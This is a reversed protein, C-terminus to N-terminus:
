SFDLFSDLKNTLKEKDIDKGIIVIKIMKDGYEPDWDDKIDPNAILIAEQEEKSLDSIWPGTPVLNKSNGASEFMYAINLEDTFYVVGKTRIISKDWPKNIFNYFLKRNFPSRRYYVFTEIGYELAEESDEHEEPNDLAQIWGASMSVEEFNFLKNDIIKDIDVKAYDTEILKAKPQIQKVITRVAKLDESKLDSVKNLIIVDCFELQEIILKEIDEDDINDKILNKGCNFEDALRLADTITVISDLYCINDNYMENIMTITQAIPIPECIGSAEIIIYDFKNQKVIDFIQEVLDMKLNCCICGNSLAVLSEEKKSVIGDKEILSADINIEGIDNVIIAIKKKKNNKLIHNILTTKGSGLYGTLLTIPINKKM